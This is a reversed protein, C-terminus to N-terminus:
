GNAKVVRGTTETPTCLVAVYEKKMHVVDLGTGETVFGPFKANNRAVAAVAADPIIVM